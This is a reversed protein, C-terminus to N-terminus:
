VWQHLGVQWVRCLLYLEMLLEKDEEPFKTIEILHPDAEQQAKGWSLQQPEAQVLGQHLATTPLQCHSQPATTMLGVSAPAPPRATPIAKSLPQLEQLDTSSAPEAAPTIIVTCTASSNLLYHM